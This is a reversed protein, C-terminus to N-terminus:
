SDPLYHIIIQPLKLWTEKKINIHHIGVITVRGFKAAAVPLISSSIHVYIFLM